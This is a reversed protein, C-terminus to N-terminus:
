AAAAPEVSKWLTFRASLRRGYGFLLWISLLLLACNEPIKRCILVEGNGCGCDFKIACFPTGQTLHIAWARKLVLLTFPVLMAVLMLAAGRVAVGTLLLLGCFAEFWPLLAAIANLLFPTSVLEYQRVLKLFDEPQLAKALGMYIFLGGLLWRALVAAWDLAQPGENTSQGNM